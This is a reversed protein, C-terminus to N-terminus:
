GTATDQGSVNRRREKFHTERHEGYHVCSTVILASLGCCSIYLGGVFDLNRLSFLLFLNRANKTPCQRPMGIKIRHRM